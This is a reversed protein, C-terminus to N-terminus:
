IGFTYFPSVKKNIVPYYSSWLFYLHTVTTPFYFYTCRVYSVLNRCVRLVSACCLLMPHSDREADFQTVVDVIRDGVADSRSFRLRRVGCVMASVSLLSVIYTQRVNSSHVIITTRRHRSSILFVVPLLFASYTNYVCM